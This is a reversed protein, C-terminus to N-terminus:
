RGRDTCCNTAFYGASVSRPVCMAWADTVLERLEAADVAALRLRMWAYREDRPLPRLFKAPDSAILADREERPVAFGLRTGDASLVAFVYRGVRFKALGGVEREYARPLAAVIQRVDEATAM